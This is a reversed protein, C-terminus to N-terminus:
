CVNDLPATLLTLIQMDGSTAAVYSDSSYVLKSDFMMGTDLPSQNAAAFQNRSCQVLDM